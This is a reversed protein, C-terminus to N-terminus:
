HGTLATDAPITQLKGKWCWLLSLLHTSKGESYCQIPSSKISAEFHALAKMM